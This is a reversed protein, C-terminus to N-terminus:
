VIKAQKRFIEKMPKKKQIHKLIDRKGEEDMDELMLVIKKTIDHMDEQKEDLYMEGKGTLLWNINVHFQTILALLVKRSPEKKGKEIEALHSQSFVLLDAFEQQTLNQSLRIQKFRETIDRNIPNNM